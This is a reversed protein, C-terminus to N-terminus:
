TFRALDRAAHYVRHVVLSTTLEYAVWYPKLLLFRVPKNTVDPRQHGLGPFKAILDFSEFLKAQTKEAFSKGFHELVYAYIDDLDELAAPLIRLKM